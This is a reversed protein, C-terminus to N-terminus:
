LISSVTIAAGVILGAIPGIVKVIKWFTGWKTELCALQISHKSLTGTISKHEDKNEQRMDRIETFVRGLSVMNPNTPERDPM